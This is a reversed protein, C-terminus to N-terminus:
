LRAHPPGGGLLGGEPTRSHRTGAGEDPSRRFEREAQLWDELANDPGTGRELWLEFARMRIRDTTSVQGEDGEPPRDRDALQTTQAGSLSRDLHVEKERSKM